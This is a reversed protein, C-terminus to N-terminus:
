HEMVRGLDAALEPCGGFAGDRAVAHAFYILLDSGICRHGPLGPDM